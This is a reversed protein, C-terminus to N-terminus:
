KANQLFPCAKIKDDLLLAEWGTEIYLSQLSTLQTAETLLKTKIWTKRNMNLATTGSLM